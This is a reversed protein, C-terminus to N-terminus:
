RSRDTPPCRPTPVYANGRASPGARSRTSATSVPPPAWGSRGPPIRRSPSCRTTASRPRTRRMTGSPNRRSVRAARSCSCGREVPRSGCAGAAISTCPASERACRARRRPPKLRGSAAARSTAGFSAAATPVWGCAAAVTSRWRRWGTMPCPPRMRRSISTTACNTATSDISATKPASGSSVGAMRCSRWSPARRSDTTAVSARSCWKPRRRRRRSPRASRACPQSFPRPCVVGAADHVDPERLARNAWRARMPAM